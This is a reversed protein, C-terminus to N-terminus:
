WLIMIILQIVRTHAFSLSATLAQLSQYTTCPIDRTGFDSGEWTM